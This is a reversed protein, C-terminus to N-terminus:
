EKYIIPFFNNLPKLIEHEQEPGWVVKAYSILPLHIPLSFIFM